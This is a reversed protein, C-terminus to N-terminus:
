EKTLRYGIPLNDVVEPNRKLKMVMSKAISHKKQLCMM